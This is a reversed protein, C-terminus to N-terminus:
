IIRRLLVGPEATLWTTVEPDTGGNTVIGDALSRLAEVLPKDELVKLEYAIQKPASFTRRWTELSMVSVRRQGYRSDVRASVHPPPGLIPDCYDRLIALVEAEEGDTSKIKDGPLPDVHPDRSIPSRSISMVVWGDPVGFEPSRTIFTVWVRVTEGSFANKTPDFENLLLMDGVAYPRDDRRWEHTKRGERVARFSEPWTKLEHTAARGDAQM